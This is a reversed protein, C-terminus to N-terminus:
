DILLEYGDTQAFTQLDDEDEASPGSFAGSVDEDIFYDYPIFTINISDDGIADVGPNNVDDADITITGQLIETSLVAPVSYAKTRADAGLNISYFNPVSVKTGGLDVIVDDIETNNYEVIIVGGYPIGNQYSSKLKMTLTVVDGIGLTENNGVSDILDGEENFVEITVTGNNLLEASFTKTGQCPVIETSVSSFYTLSSANAWLIEISDGPSATFTGTDSVTLAPNGNIRYRHTGGVAITTFKDIASLTITTDEISNGPPCIGGGSPSAAAPSTGTGSPTGGLDTFPDTLAPINAFAGLLFVGIGVIAFMNATNKAKKSSYGQFMGIGLLIVSILGAVGAISFSLADQIVM